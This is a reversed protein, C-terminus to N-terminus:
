NDAAVRANLKDVLAFATVGDGVRGLLGDIVCPSPPLSFMPTEFALRNEIVKAMSPSPYLSAAPLARALNNHIIRGRYPLLTASVAFPLAGLPNLSAFDCTIGLVCFIAGSTEKGKQILLAGDKTQKCVWFLSTVGTNPWYPLDAYENLDSIFPLPPKDSPRSKVWNCLSTLVEYWRSVSDEALMQLTQRGAETERLKSVHSPDFPAPLKGFVVNSHWLIGDLLHHINRDSAHLCGASPPKLSTAQTQIPLGQHAKVTMDHGSKLKVSLHPDISELNSVKISKADATGTHDIKVGVRQVGNSPPPIEKVVGQKGNLDVATLIGHIRVRCGVDTPDVCVNRVDAFCFNREAHQELGYLLVRSNVHYKRSSM